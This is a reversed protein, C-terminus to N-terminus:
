QRRKRALEIQSELDAHACWISCGIRFGIQNPNLILNDMMWITIRCHLVREILKVMNSTLSNPRINEITYGAGQKKPIPIVKAVKWDYPKWANNLSYNITNLLDCPSLDFLIKIMHVTIGDPGPASFPLNRIM